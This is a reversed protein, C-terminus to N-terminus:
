IPEESWSFSEDLKEEPFDMSWGGGCGVGAYGM